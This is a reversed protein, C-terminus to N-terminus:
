RKIADWCADATQQLLHGNLDIFGLIHDRTISILSGIFLAFLVVVPLDKILGEAIGQEFLSKAFPSVM